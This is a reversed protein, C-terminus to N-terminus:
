FLWPQLQVCDGPLLLAVRETNPDGPFDTFKLEVELLAQGLQGLLVCLSLLLFSLVSAFLLLHNFLHLFGTQLRDVIGIHHVLHEAKQPGRAREWTLLTM